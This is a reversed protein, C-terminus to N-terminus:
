SEDVDVRLAEISSENNTVRAELSLATDNLDQTIQNLEITIGYVFITFGIFVTWAIFPFAKYQELKRGPIITQSM